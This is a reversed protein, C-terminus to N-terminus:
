PKFTREHVACLEHVFMKHIPREHLVVFAIMDLRVSESFIINRWGMDEM